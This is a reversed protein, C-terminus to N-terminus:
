HHLHYQNHSNDKVVAITSIYMYLMAIELKFIFIVTINLIIVCTVLLIMFASALMLQLHIGSPSIGAHGLSTHLRKM